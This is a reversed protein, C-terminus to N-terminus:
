LCSIRSSASILAAIMSLAFVIDAFMTIFAFFNNAPRSKSRLSVINMSSVKKLFNFSISLVSFVIVSSSTFRASFCNPSTPLNEKIAGRNRKGPPPVVVATNYLAPLFSNLMLMKGCPISCTKSVM